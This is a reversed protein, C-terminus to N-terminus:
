SFSGNRGCGDKMNGLNHIIRIGPHEMSEVPMTDNTSRGIYHGRRPPDSACVCPPHLNQFEVLLTACLTSPVADIVLVGSTLPYMAPATM